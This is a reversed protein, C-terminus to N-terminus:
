FVEKKLLAKELSLQGAGWVMLVLFAALNLLAVESGNGLPYWGKPLHVMILAGLMILAGFLANFRTFFGLLIGLGGALEAFAILWALFYPLGFMGAFGSVNADGIFGFKQMGHFFFLLGIIVRFAVYFGESYKKFFDEFLM